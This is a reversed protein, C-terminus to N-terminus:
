APTSCKAELAKLLVHLEQVAGILATTIMAYNIGLNAEDEALECALVAQPLVAEVDQAILGLEERGPLAIRNFRKPALRMVADLGIGSDAINEKLRADSQTLTGGIVINGNPAYFATQGAGIASQVAYTTYFGAGNTQVWGPSGSLWSLQPGGGLQVFTGVLVNQTVNMGGNCQVGTTTIGGGGVTLGSTVTAGGNCQVGTTTIGGGTVNIGNVTGGSLPLYNGLQNANALQLGGTSDVSVVLNTGTWGFRYRHQSNDSGDGTFTSYTIGQAGNIGVDGSFTASNGSLVLSTTLSASGTATTYFTLQAGNTGTWNETAIANIAAGEPYTGGSNRGSINQSWLLDGNLVGAPGLATGRMRRTYLTPANGVTNSYVDLSVFASTGDAGAIYLNGGGSPAPPSNNANLTLQGQPPVTGAAGVLVGGPNFTAATFVPPSASNGTGGNAVPLVGSVGSALPIKAGDGAVSGSHDHGLANDFTGALANYEANLDEANARLGPQINAAAQRTYGAPM